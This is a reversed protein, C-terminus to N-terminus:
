FKVQLNLGYSRVIPLSASEIGQTADSTTYTAEPDVNPIHKKIIAVNRAVLSLSAGKLWAISHILQGFNYGLSLERLKIFDGSYVFGEVYNNSRVNYYFNQADVHTTNPTGDANVGAALVGGERGPLTEKSLGHRYLNFNTQSLIKSGFKGDILASLLFGKYRFTNRVGGVTIPLASGFDHNRDGLTPIGANLILSGSANRAYSPGVIQSQSKGLIQQITGNFPAPATIFNTAGPFLALVKSHNVSVNLALDWAFDKSRLPTGTLLVEFGKNSLKGVNALTNFYGSADSISGTLIDNTTTRAYYAFDIGLRNSLFKLEAGLETERLSKPQLLPNPTTGQNIFGIPAGALQISNSGYTLGLSYASPAGGGVEAVSARIKGFTIWSPLNKFADSFVFSLSASPYFIHDHASSLTSFWDERETLNIFLYNHFSLESQAYLSNTQERYLSKFAAQTVGNQLTYLGREYFNTATGSSYDNKVIRQNGGVSLDFAFDRGIKHNAGILFDTNVERNLFDESLYFGNYGITPAGNFATGTPVAFDHLRVAYDMGVRGQLYLWDTFSYRLSANGFVRDRHINEFKQYASWFPNTRVTFGAFPIENGTVPDIYHNRMDNINTSNAMTLLSLNENFTQTGVVPPNRTYEHAYLINTSLSLHKDFNHTLGLNIGQKTYNSNPTIAKSDVNTASFNFGGKENGGALSITNTSNYGKNYFEKIRNKDAVYPATGGWYQIQPSGDLRGGYSYVGGGTADARTLPRTNHQGLGYVYQYDTEDIAQETVYYSSVTVGLGQVSKGSKTTILIAGDIARSGYLASAAAGKLITMNEIDDPNIASLGSGGDSQLQSTNGDAGYTDNTFPIGNIVILPNGGGNIGSSGRLRLKSSGGPGTTSATVNLGAVKGQLDNGINTTKVTTLEDQRVTTASYGIRKESKRIGLATVVVEDLNKRTETLSIRLQATGNVVVEQTLYGVFRVVLTSGPPASLSFKGNADTLTGNTTGKVVVSVGGLPQHDAEGTVLGSVTQGFVTGASAIFAWLVALCILYLKNM